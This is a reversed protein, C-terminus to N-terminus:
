GRGTAPQTQKRPIRPLDLIENIALWLSDRYASWAWDKDGESLKGLADMDARFDDAQENVFQDLGVDTSICRAKNM